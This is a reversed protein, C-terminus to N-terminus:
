QSLQVSREGGNVATPPIGTGLQTVEDVAHAIQYAVPAERRGRTVRPNARGVVDSIRNATSVKAARLYILSRQSPPACLRLLPAGELALRGAQELM